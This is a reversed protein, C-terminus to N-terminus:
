IYQVMVGDIFHLVILTVTKLGNSFLQFGLKLQYSSKKFKVIKALQQTPLGASNNMYLHPLYCALPWVRLHIHQNRTLLTPKMVTVFEDHPQTLSRRSSQVASRRWIVDVAQRACPTKVYTTKASSIAVRILGTTNMKSRIFRFHQPVGCGNYAATDYKAIALRLRHYGWQEANSIPTTVLPLRAIFVHFVYRSVAQRRQTLNTNDSSRAASTDERHWDPRYHKASTSSEQLKVYVTIGVLWIRYHRDTTNEVAQVTAPNRWESDM